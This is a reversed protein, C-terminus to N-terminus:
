HLLVQVKRHQLHRQLLQRRGVPVKELKGAPGAGANNKRKRVAENSAESGLELCPGYAMGAQEFFQNLRGRNPLVLICADHEAHIYGGVVNETGLEVSVLFHDNTEGLLRALPFEPFPLTVKSVLM